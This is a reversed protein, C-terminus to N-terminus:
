VRVADDPLDPTHHKEELKPNSNKKSNARM